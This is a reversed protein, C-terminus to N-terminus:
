PLPSRSFAASIFARTSSAAAASCPTDSNLLPNSPAAPRPAPPPPLVSVVRAIHKCLHPAFAGVSPNM